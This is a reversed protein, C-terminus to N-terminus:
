NQCSITLTRFVSDLKESLSHLLQTYLFVYTSVFDESDGKELPSVTDSIVADYDVYPM